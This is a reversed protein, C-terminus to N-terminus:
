PLVHHVSPLQPILVFIALQLPLVSLFDKQVVIKRFYEKYNCNYKRDKGRYFCQKYHHKMLYNVFNNLFLHFFDNYHNGYHRHRNHCECLVVIGTALFITFLFLAALLLSFALLSVFFASFALFTRVAFLFTCFLAALLLFSALFFRILLFYTFFRM